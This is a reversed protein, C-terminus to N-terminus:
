MGRDVGEQFRSFHMSLKVLFLYHGYQTLSFVRKEKLDSRKFYSNPLNLIRDLYVISDNLIGDQSPLYFLQNVEQSKLSEIHSMVRSEDAGSDLLSRKYDSLRMIPAYLVRSPNLKQNAEDMDCTNSIIICNVEKVNLSPLDVILVDKLGDGQFLTKESDPISSTYFAKGSMDPFSRLADRLAEQAGESLYSPIALKLDGPSM